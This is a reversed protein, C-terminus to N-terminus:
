QRPVRLKPHMNLLVRNFDSQRNKTWSRLSSSAETMSEKKNNKIIEYKTESLKSSLWDDMM